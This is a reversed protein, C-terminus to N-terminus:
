GKIGAKDIVTKWNTTEVKIRKAFEDASVPNPVLGQAVLKARVDPLSLIRKIEGQLKNIVEAPTGAPALLGYWAALEYNPVGADKLPMIGPLAEQPSNGTIALARIRGSNIYGVATPISSFIMDTEGGLLATMAPAGGRYPVHAIDTNTQQKFVEGALHGTTGIGSSGFNLSGPKDKALAILEKVSKAPHNANVVLVNEVDVLTMVPAFDKQPQYPLDKIFNPNIVIPGITALLLTHGDPQAKAVQATAIVGGGGPRNLVVVPQKWAESLEAGIIRALVDTSGGPAFGDIITIARAPYDSGAANNAVAQSSLSLAGATVIAPLVKLFFSPKKM